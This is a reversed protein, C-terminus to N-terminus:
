NQQDHEMDEPAEPAEPLSDATVEEVSEPIEEDYVWTDEDAEVPEAEVEEWDEWDYSQDFEGNRYADMLASSFLSGYIIFYLAMWLVHLGGLIIAIINLVKGTKVNSQSRHSYNEPNEQFLKLSKNAAVLGIIGMIVVPIGALGCCCGLLVMFLSVIGLIVSLPDAPLRQENM